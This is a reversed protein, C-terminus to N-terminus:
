IKKLAQEQQQAEQELSSILQGALLSNNHITELYIQNEQNKEHRELEEIAFNIKSLSQGIAKTNAKISHLLIKLSAYLELSLIQEPEPLIQNIFLYYIEQSGHQPIELFASVQCHKLEKQSSVLELFMDHVAGTREIIDIFKNRDTPNLYLSSMNLTSLDEPEIEFLTLAAKNADYINGAWDTIMVADKSREFMIRLTYESQRLKEFTQYQKTAYRISRELIESSIKDKILYDAAGIKLAQEDILQDGKGTLIIVPQACNSKVAETLLDIGSQRGLHYDVLYLDYHRKLMANIAESYSNCWSLEYKKQEIGAALLELTLIYDDEDDDVLM